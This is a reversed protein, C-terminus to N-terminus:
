RVSRKDQSARHTVSGISINDRRSYIGRYIPGAYVVMSCCPLSSPAKPGRHTATHEIYHMGLPIKWESLARRFVWVRSHM